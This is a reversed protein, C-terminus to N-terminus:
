AEIVEGDRLGHEAFAAVDSRGVADSGFADDGVGGGAGTGGGGEEATVHTGGVVAVGDEVAGALAEAQKLIEAGIEGIEVGVEAVDVM